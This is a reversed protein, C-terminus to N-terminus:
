AELAIADGTAIEGARVVSCYVGMINGLDVAIARAIARDRKGTAIDYGPTVCRTITATCRLRVDGIAFTEGVLDAERASFGPTARVYLNARLRLPDVPEHVIAELAAIWRDFVLSVPAADFYPGRERVDLMVGRLSALDVAAAPSDVTHLLEHEKGRYTKGTRAHSESAVFLGTRRDGAVGREDLSARALPEAALSKVPYRWLREIMGLPTSTSM